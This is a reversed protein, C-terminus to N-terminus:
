IMLIYISDLLQIKMPQVELIYYFVVQEPIQTPLQVVLTTNLLLAALTETKDQPVLRVLRVLAELPVLRVLLDLHVPRVPLVLRALHARAVALVVRVLHVQRVLRVLVEPRVLVVALVV